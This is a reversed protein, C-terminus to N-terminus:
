KALRAEIQGGTGPFVAGPPRVQSYRLREPGDAADGPGRAREPRLTGPGSEGRPIIFLAKNLDFTKLVQCSIKPRPRPTPIARWCWWNGARGAQQVLGDEPGPAAGAQAPRLCLEPSPSRLHHRRGELDAVPQQRGPGPRHREPALTQPRRGASRGPDQHLRMGSRRCARQWTVVEHLM